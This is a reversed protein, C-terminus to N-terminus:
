RWSAAAPTPAAAASPRRPRRFWAIRSRRRAMPSTASSSALASVTAMVIAAFLLHMAEIRPDYRAPDTAAKFLMVSSIMLFATAALGRSQRANLSFVGFILLPLLTLMVGGRAPGTIAYGWCIGVLAWLVQPISLGPDGKRALKLNLGSRVLLLFLLGGGLNWAQLPWSDNEDILGLLVEGHQVGAYLLYVALALWTHGVRLRQKPETGLLLDSM